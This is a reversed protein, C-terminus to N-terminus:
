INVDEDIEDDVPQDIKVDEDIEDEIPPEQKLEPEWFKEQAKLMKKVRYNQIRKGLKRLPSDGLSGEDIRLLTGAAIVSADAVIGSLSLGGLNGKGVARVLAKYDSKLQQYEPTARLPSRLKPSATKLHHRVNSIRKQRKENTEGREGSGSSNTARRLASRTWWGYSNSTAQAAQKTGNVLLNHLGSLFSHFALRHGSLPTLLKSEDLGAAIASVTEKQNYISLASKVKSLSSAIVQFEPSDERNRSRGWRQIDPTRQIVPGSQVNQTGVSNTQPQARQQSRGLLSAVARNGITSQLFLVEHNNLEQPKAQMRQITSMSPATGTVPTARPKNKRLSNSIGRKREDISKM